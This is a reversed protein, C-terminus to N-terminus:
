DVTAFHDFQFTCYLCCRFTFPQSLGNSYVTRNMRLTLTREINKHGQLYGILHRAYRTKRQSIIHEVLYSKPFSPHSSQPAANLKRPSDACASGKARTFGWGADWKAEPLWRGNSFSTVLFCPTNHECNNRASRESWPFFERRMSRAM